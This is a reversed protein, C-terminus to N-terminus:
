KAVEKICTDETKNARTVKGKLSFVMLSDYGSFLKKCKDISTCYPLIITDELTGNIKYMKETIYYNDIVDHVFFVIYGDKMKINVNKIIEDFKELGKLDLIVLKPSRTLKETPTGSNYKRFWQRCIDKSQETFDYIIDFPKSYHYLLNQVLLELDFEDNLDNNETVGKFFNEQYISEWVNTSYPKFDVMKPYKEKIYKPITSDKSFLLNIEELIKEKMETVKTAHVEYKEAIEKQTMGDILYANMITDEIQQNLIERKERIWKNFCDNSVSLLTVLRKSNTGDFLEIALRRKDKYYLQLGHTANLEIARELIERKNKTHEIVCKITPKVTMDHQEHARLRHLGDILINNQNITIPPLVDLNEAYKDITKQSYHLRPYMKKDFIIDTIKMEIIEQEEPPTQHEGAKNKNTEKNM